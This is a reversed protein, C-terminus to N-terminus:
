LGLDASTERGSQQSPEVEHTMKAFKRTLIDCFPVSDDLECCYTFIQSHPLQLKSGRHYAM